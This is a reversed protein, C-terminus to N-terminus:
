YLTCHLHNSYLLVHTVCRNGDQKPATHRTPAQLCAQTSPLPRTVTSHALLNFNSVSTGREISGEQPHISVWLLISELLETVINWIPLYSNDHTTFLLIIRSYKIKNKKCIIVQLRNWQSFSSYSLNWILWPWQRWYITDNENKKDSVIYHLRRERRDSFHQKFGGKRM